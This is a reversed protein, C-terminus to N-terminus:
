AAQRSNQYRLVWAVLSDCEDFEPLIECGRDIIAFSNVRVNADYMLLARVNKLGNM